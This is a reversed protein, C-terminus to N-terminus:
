DKNIYEKMTIFEYKRSAESIFLTLYRRMNLNQLEESLLKYLFNLSLKSKSNKVTVLIVSNHVDKTYTIIM